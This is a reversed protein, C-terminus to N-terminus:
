ARSAGAEQKDALRGVVRELLFVVAANMSRRNAKAVERLRERLESPMRVIFKETEQCAQM